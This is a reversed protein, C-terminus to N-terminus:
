DIAKAFPSEVGHATLHYHDVCKFYGTEGKDRNWRKALVLKAEIEDYIIVLGTRNCRKLKRKALKNKKGMKSM